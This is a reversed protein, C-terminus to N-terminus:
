LFAKIDLQVSLRLLFDGGRLRAIEVSHHGCVEAGERGSKSHLCAVLYLCAVRQEEVLVHRFDFERCWNASCHFADVAPFPPLQQFHYHFRVLFDLVFIESGGVHVFERPLCDDFFQQFAANPGDDSLPWVVDDGDRCVRRLGHENGSKVGRRQSGIVLERQGVFRFAQLSPM